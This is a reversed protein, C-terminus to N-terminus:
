GFGEELIQLLFAGYLLSPNQFDPWLFISLIQSGEFVGLGLDRVIRGVFSSLPSSDRFGLQVHRNCSPVPWFPM